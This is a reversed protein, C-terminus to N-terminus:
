TLSNLNRRYVGYHRNKSLGIKKVSAGRSVILAGNYDTTPRSREKM